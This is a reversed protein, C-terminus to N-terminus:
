EFEAIAVTLPGVARVGGRFDGPGGPPGGPFGGPPGGPFGFPGGNPPGGPFGGPGGNPPGGPFGGPGGNPSGGPFGGRGGNPPGGGFGGPGSVHGHRQFSEDPKGKFGRPIYPYSDTIVYYYTGKPYEPTVGFRGNCDDLDGLSAVYEYDQVFSGDFKGGPGDSSAGSSSAGYVSGSSHASAIAGTPRNGKKVRYSANLKVIQSNADRATNYGYPGYIPFGDAAYGLLVPGISRECNKWYGLLFAM